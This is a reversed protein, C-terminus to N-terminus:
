RLRRIDYYGGEKGHSKAVVRRCIYLYLLREMEGEKTCMDVIVHQGRKM